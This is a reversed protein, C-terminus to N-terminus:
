INEKVRGIRDCPVFREGDWKKFSSFSNNGRYDKQGYGYVQGEQPTTVVLDGEYGPSGTYIGVRESFDFRGEDTVRAVWPLGYRKENYVGFSSIVANKM